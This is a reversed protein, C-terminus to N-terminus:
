TQGRWRQMPSATEQSRVEIMVHDTTKLLRGLGVKYSLVLGSNLQPPPTLTGVSSYLFEELISRGGLHVVDGFNANLDRLAAISHM